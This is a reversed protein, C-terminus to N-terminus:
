AVAGVVHQDVFDFVVGDGFWGFWWWRPVKENSAEQTQQLAAIRKQHDIRVKDLKSLARARDARQWELACIMAKGVKRAVRAM